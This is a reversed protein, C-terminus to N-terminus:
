CVRLFLRQGFVLKLPNGEHSFVTSQFAIVTASTVDLTFAVEPWKSYYDVLMIAFRCDPPASHFSDVIDMVLKEWAANSFAVPQYPAAQTRATKEHLCCTVCYKIDTEVDSDMGPWWYLERLRQKTKVIGQHTNHALHILQSQLSSPIVVRHTGRILYGDLKALEARARYYPFLALDLGKLTRPWQQRVHKTVRQM